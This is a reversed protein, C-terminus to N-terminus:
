DHAREEGPQPKEAAPGVEGALMPLFDSLRLLVMPHGQDARMIVLPVDLFRLTKEDLAYDQMVARECQVLWNEVLIKARRKCEIRFRGGSLRPLELDDGGDRAQGLKREVPMGLAASLIKGVELEFGAGKRRQMAGM